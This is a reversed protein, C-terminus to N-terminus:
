PKCYTIMGQGRRSGSQANWIMEDGAMNDIDVSSCKLRKAIQAEELAQTERKRTEIAGAAQELKRM